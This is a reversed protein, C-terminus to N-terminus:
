IGPGDIIINPHVAPFGHSSSGPQDAIWSGIIAFRSELIHLRTEVSTLFSSSIIPSPDAPTPASFTPAFVSQDGGTRTNPPPFPRSSPGPQAAIRSEMAIFRSGLNQLRREILRLRPSISTLSFIDYGGSPDVPDVFSSLAASVLTGEGSDCHDEAINNSAVKTLIDQLSLRTLAWVHIAFKSKASLMAQTVAAIKIEKKPLEFKQTKLYKFYRALM